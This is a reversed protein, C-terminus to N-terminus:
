EGHSACREQIAAIAPVMFVTAFTAPSMTLDNDGILMDVSISGVPVDLMRPLDRADTTETDPLLVLAIHRLADM